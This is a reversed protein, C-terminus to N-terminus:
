SYGFIYDFFANGTGTIGGGYIVSGTTGGGGGGESGDGGGDSEGGGGSEEGGSNEEETGGSTSDGGADSGEGGGSSGSGEGDYGGDYEGEYYEDGEPPYYDGGSVCGNYPDCYSGEGCYMVACDYNPGDYDYGGYDDHEGEYDYDEYYDHDDFRCECEGGGFNWAGDQQSCSQACQREQEKIEAYREDFSRSDEFRAHSGQVARDYCELRQTSDQIQACNPDFGSGPGRDPGRRDFDGRDFGRGCEGPDTIGAERCEEPGHTEFMIKECIRRADAEKDVNAERLADRCEPPAEQDIMIKFCIERASRDREPDIGERDFHEQCPRPIHHEYSEDDYQDEIDDLVDHLYDPLLDFPDNNEEIYDLKDCSNDDDLVDCAYALPAMIACQEAFETFSIDGCRCTEGSTRFCEVMIEGFEKAEVRQQDTLDKDLRKRWDPADEDDGTYCLRSYALPDLEALQLCLEKVKSAIAAATEIGVERGIVARVYEDKLTPPIDKAIKSIL